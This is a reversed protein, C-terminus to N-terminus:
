LYKNTINNQKEYNVRIAYAEKETNFIGLHIMKKGFTIYARFKKYKKMYSVGIYKSTTIKNKYRHCSNERETVWEINEIRNDDRIGNVHNVQSKNDKNLIFCLAMLRHVFFTKSKSNSTLVVNKYGKHNYSQKLFRSYQRKGVCDIRDLSKVRGLNSVQYLGEYGKVDKWIENELNKM